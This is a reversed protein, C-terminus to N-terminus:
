ESHIWVERIPELAPNTFYVRGFDQTSVRGLACDTKTIVTATRLRAHSLVGMEGFVSGPELAVEADNVWALGELLLYLCDAPDGKRIVVDGHHVIVRKAFPLLADFIANTNTEARVRSGLLLIETLRWANLPFLISHLILIPYLHLLGSYSIFAVNSGLAIIRLPIMTRACFTFSVLASAIYGIYDQMAGEFEPKQAQRVSM